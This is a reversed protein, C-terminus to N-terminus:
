KSVVLSSAKYGEALVTYMGSALSATSIESTGSVKQSLVVQGLSNLVQVITPSTVEITFHSSAPNPFIRLSTEFKSQVSTPNISIKRIRKSGADAV